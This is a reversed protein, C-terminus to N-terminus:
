RRRRRALLAVGGSLLLFSSPEPVKSLVTIQGNVLLNSTDFIVEPDQIVNFSGGVTGFQLVQFTDGVNYQEFSDTLNLELTAGANITLDGLGTSGIQLLDADDSAVDIRVVDTAGLTVPDDPLAFTAVGNLPTVIGTFSDSFVSSGPTGGSDAFGEVQFDALRGQCCGDARQWLRITGVQETAGLDVRVVVAGTVSDELRQYTNGGTNRLGSILNGTAGHSSEGELLTVSASGGQPVGLAVDNTNVIVSSADTNPTGFTDGGVFAELEAIALSNNNSASFDTRTIQIFRLNTGGLSTTGIVDDGGPSIIAAQTSTALALGVLAPLWAFCNRLGATRTM